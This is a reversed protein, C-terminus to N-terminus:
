SNECLWSGAASKPHATCGAIPNCFPGRVRQSGEVFTTDHLKGLGTPAAHLKVPQIPAIEADGKRCRLLGSRPALAATQVFRV